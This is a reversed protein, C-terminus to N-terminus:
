FNLEWQTYFFDPDTTGIIKSGAWLHSCGFLINSRATMSYKAILDLENGFDTSTTNQAGAFGVGPVVDTASDTGLYYYWMLLDWKAQPKMTLLVNPSIINSRAAADIFGLYKHALPFLQNYRNYSGDGHDGSAYDFYFWLTPDWAMNDLKHGLGTTIFGASQDLGLGSQRGGQYAGEVEYLWGDGATGWVRSGFTHLSFDTAVPAGVTQNDYGLYYFDFTAKEYGAYTSYVGYFSQDYDAEDFKDPVVPVFNTYFGDITWDGSKYLGRIGEFTRRTNAWDLPSVTRQAGFLLEQRGVRLTFEDTLKADFFANLLDAYNEDIARPNYTDNASVDAAIGEVFVRVNDNVKWNGYLRLRSLLFDNDTDLFGQNPPATTSSRGMGREHHYRLRYQGGIDLTGFRGCNGVPMLKLGDGLCCGQYKPDKLYSFDNAYFVGAHSQACRNGKAAGKKAAVCAPCGCGVGSGCGIEDGCGDASADCSPCDCAPEEAECCFSVWESDSESHTMVAPSSVGYGNPMFLSEQADAGTAGWSFALATGLATCLIVRM